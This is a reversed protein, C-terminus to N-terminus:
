KFNENGIEKNVLGAADFVATMRNHAYVHVQWYYGNSDKYKKPQNILYQGDDDVKWANAKGRDRWTVVWLQPKMQGSM